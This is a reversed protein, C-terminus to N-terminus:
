LDIIWSWKLSSNPPCSYSIHSNGNSKWQKVTKEWSSQNNNWSELSECVFEYEDNGLMKEGELEWKEANVIEWIKTTIALRNTQLIKIPNPKTKKAM